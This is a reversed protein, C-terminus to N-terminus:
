NKGEARKRYCPIFLHKIATSIVFFVFRHVTWSSNLAIVQLDQTNLIHYRSKGDSNYDVTTYSLARVTGIVIQQLVRFSILLFVTFYKLSTNPFILTILFVVAFISCETKTCM